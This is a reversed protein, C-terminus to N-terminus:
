NFKLSAGWFLVSAVLAITGLVIGTIAMGHYRKSPPAVREWRLANLGCCIGIAPPILFWRLKRSSIAM